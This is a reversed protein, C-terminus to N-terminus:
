NVQGKLFELVDAMQEVTVDREIGEPMLSKNTTKLDEISSRIITEERGEPQRLATSHTIDTQALVVAQIALAKTPRDFECPLDATAM